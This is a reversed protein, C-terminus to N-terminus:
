VLRGYARNEVPQDFWSAWLRTPRADLLRFGMKEYLRCAAENLSTTALHVGPVRLAALQELYSAMLHYGLGCGRWPAAVNIHLHAPYARLDVRPYERRLASTLLGWIYRRGLPGLQYHGFLFRVLVAPLIERETRRHQRRTDTSGTLFGVVMEDACAVWAHEPELDTYYAYFSDLFLRRDEFYGEVPEGFFATDAAIAHLAARDEPQYPRIILDVRDGV